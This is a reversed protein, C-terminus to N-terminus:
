VEGGGKKFVTKNGYSKRGRMTDDLTCGKEGFTDGVYSMNGFFWM